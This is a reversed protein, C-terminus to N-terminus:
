AARWRPENTVSVRMLRNIWNYREILEQIAPLEVNSLCMNTGVKVSEKIHNVKAYEAEYMLRKRGENQIFILGQERLSNTRKLIYDRSKNFKDRLEIRSIGPKEAIAELVALENPYSM